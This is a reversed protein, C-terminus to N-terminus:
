RKYIHIILAGDGTIRDASTNVNVVYGAIHFYDPDRGESIKRKLFDIAYQNMGGGAIPENRFHEPDDKEIKVEPVPIMSSIDGCAERIASKAFTDDSPPIGVV